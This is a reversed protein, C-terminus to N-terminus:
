RRRAIECLAIKKLLTARDDVNNLQEKMIKCPSQPWDWWQPCYQKGFQYYAVWAAMINPNNINYLSLGLDTCILWDNPYTKLNQIATPVLQKAKADYISIASSRIRYDQYATKLKVFVYALLIVAIIVLIVNIYKFYKINRM